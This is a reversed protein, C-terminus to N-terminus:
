NVSVACSASMGGCSATIITTGSSVATVLGGSVQAVSPNSSSWSVQKNTANSPSVQATLQLVGGMELIASGQSISVGTVAVVSPTVPNQTQTNQQPKTTGSPKTQNVSTTPKASEKPKETTQQEEPEEVVEPRGLVQPVFEIPTWDEVPLNTADLTSLTKLSSLCELNTVSTNSINLYVLQTLGTLPTLDSVTNQRLDLKQLERLNECNLFELNSCGCNGVNLAELTGMEKPFNWQQVTHGSLNLYNLNPFYKLDELTVVTVPTELSSFNLETVAQLQDATVTGPELLLVTEIASGLTEDVWVISAPKPEEPPEMDEPVPQEEPIDTEQEIVVPQKVKQIETHPAPDRKLLIGAGIGSVIVIAVAGIIIPLLFAKQKHPQQSAVPITRTEETEAPIRTNQQGAKQKEQEAHLSLAVRESELERVIQESHLPLYATQEEAELEIRNPHQPLYATQEEAEPEIREPHQPLYATREEAEAEIQEPHQSLYATQEEAELEIREPHQPLYATQEEAEPEIREPHQPLYPSYEKAGSPSKAARSALSGQAISPRGNAWWGSGATPQEMRSGVRSGSTKGGASLSELVVTDGVRQSLKSRYAALAEGMQAATEWRDEPRYACAKLIIKSLQRDAMVPAPLPAKNQLRIQQANANSEYSVPTPPLPLFPARNCNLLRYLVLGFSYLDVRYDGEEGNAVEPAMYGFTGKVSMGSITHEMSKAVGFDGLKYDGASNVFINGPKIDRHLVRERRLLELARCIDEGLKLVDWLRIPQKAIQESLSTLLEMKIFIDYGPEHVKPLITHAEYSVINTNGKLRYNVNIETLLTNLVQTYYEQLSSEDSVIGEAYLSEQEGPQSPLSIHKVAALYQNGLETKQMLYVKGYSGQGLLRVTNWEGWLPEFERIDSM